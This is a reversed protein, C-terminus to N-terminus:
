RMSLVVHFIVYCKHGFVVYLNFRLEDFYKSTHYVILTKNLIFAAYDNPLNPMNWENHLIEDETSNIHMKNNTKNDTVSNYTIFVMCIQSLSHSSLLKM